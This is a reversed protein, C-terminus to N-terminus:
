ALLKIQKETKLSSKYLTSSLLDYYDPVEFTVLAFFVEVVLVPMVIV